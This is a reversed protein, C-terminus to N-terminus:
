IEKTTKKFEESNVKLTKLKNELVTVNDQMGQLTNADKNFKPEAKTVKKHNTKNKKTKTKKAKKSGSSPKSVKPV